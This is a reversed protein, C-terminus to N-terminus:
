LWPPTNFIVPAGSPLTMLTYSKDPLITSETIDSESVILMGVFRLLPSIPMTFIPSLLIFTTMCYSDIDDQCVIALEIMVFSQSNATLIGITAANPADRSQGLVLPARGRCQLTNLTLTSCCIISVSKRAVVTRLNHTKFKRGEFPVDLCKFTIYLSYQLRAPVTRKINTQRYGSIYLRHCVFM